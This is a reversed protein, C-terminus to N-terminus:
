RRKNEKTVLSDLYGEVRAVRNMLLMLLSIILLVTFSIFALLPTIERSLYWWGLFLMVM